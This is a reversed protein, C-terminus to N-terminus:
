LEATEKRVTLNKSYIAHKMCTSPFNARHPSCGCKTGDMVGEDFPALFAFTTVKDFLNYKVKISLTAVKESTAGKSCAAPFIPLFEEEGSPTGFTQMRLVGHKVETTFDVLVCGFSQDRNFISMEGAVHHYARLSLVRVDFPSLGSKDLTKKIKLCEDRHGLLRWGVLQCEKSCYTAFQCVACSFVQTGTAESKSKAAIM